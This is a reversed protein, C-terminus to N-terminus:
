LGRRGGHVPFRHTQHVLVVGTRSGKDLLVMDCWGLVEGEGKDPARNTPHRGHIVNTRGTGEEVPRHAVEFKYYMTLRDVEGRRGRQGEGTLVSERSMSTESLGRRRGFSLSLSM